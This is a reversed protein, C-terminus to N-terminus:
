AHDSLAVPHVVANWPAASRLSRALQPLPEFAVVRGFSRSLHHLYIGKNSGADIATTDRSAPLPLIALEPEHVWSRRVLIAYPAKPAYVQARELLWWKLRHMM